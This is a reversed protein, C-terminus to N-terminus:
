AASFAHVRARKWSPDGLRSSIAAKSSLREKMPQKWRTSSCHWAM